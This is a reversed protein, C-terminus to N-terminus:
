RWWTRRPTGTPTSRRCSRRGPTTPRCGTEIHILSLYVAALRTPDDAVLGVVGVHDLYRVVADTRMADNVLAPIAGLATLALFHLLPELGEGVVVAVPEGPRVANALYWAAYRDRLAALDLLSHGRLLVAGRHDRHHSYLYPVARNPNLDLAYELFNGAGLAPETMLQQRVALPALSTRGASAPDTTRDTM